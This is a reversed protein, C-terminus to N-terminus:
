LLKRLPLLSLQEELAPAAKRSGTRKKVLQPQKLSM